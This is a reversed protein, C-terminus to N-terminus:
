QFTLAFPGSLSLAQLAVKVKVVASGGEPCIADDSGGGGAGAGGAGGEGGDACVVSQVFHSTNMPPPRSTVRTAISIVIIM